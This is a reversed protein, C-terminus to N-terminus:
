RKSGRSEADQLRQELARLKQELEKIRSEVASRADAAAKLRDKFEPSGLQQELEKMREPDFSFAFMRGEEGPLQAIDPFEGRMMPALDITPKEREVVFASVTRQQKDRVVDLTVAQGDEKEGVLRSLAAATSVPKGDVAAIVDGVELGAKDAPSGDEIRSILVGAEEPAGFFRRLEATLQTLGVGLFGRKMAAGVIVPGKDDSSWFRVHPEGDDGVTVVRVETKVEDKPNKGTSGDALVQSAASLCVALAVAMLMVRVKM